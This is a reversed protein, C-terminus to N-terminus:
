EIEPNLNINPMEIDINELISENGEKYFTGKEILEQCELCKVLADLREINKEIRRHKNLVPTEFSLVESANLQLIKKDKEEKSKIIQLKELNDRIFYLFRTKISRGMKEKHTTNDSGIQLTHLPDLKIDKDGIIVDVRGEILAISESNDGVEVGFDTGRVTALAKPTKVEYNDIGFIDTFTNWIVGKKQSIQINDESLKEISIETEKDLDVIISDYFIVTADGDATRIKDSLSLEMENEAEQWGNGNDIQVTGDNIMIYAAETNSRYLTTYVFLAGLIFLIVLVGSIKKFISM